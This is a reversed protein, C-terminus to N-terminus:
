SGAVGRVTTAGSLRWPGDRDGDSARVCLHVRKDIGRTNADAGPNATVAPATLVIGSADTTTVVTQSTWAEGGRANPVATPTACDAPRPERTSTRVNNNDTNEFTVNYEITVAEYNDTGGERPVNNVNRTAIRWVKNTNTSRASDPQPTGPQAPFTYLKTTQVAWQSKGTGNSYALCLFYGTYPQLGSRVVVESLSITLDSDGAEILTGESCATQIPKSTVFDAAAPDFQPNRQPDAVLRAEWNFGKVLGVATWALATVANDDDNLTQGTAQAAAPATTATRTAWAWSLNKEDDDDDETRVCLLETATVTSSASFRTGSGSPAALTEPFERCPNEASMSPIDTDAPIWWEYTEGAVPEWHWTNTSATSEWTVNLSGMGGGVPATPEAPASGTTRTKEIDSWDSTEYRDTDSPVARVRFDYDTGETLGSAVCEEDDVVNDDGGCSADGWDDGPERQDVEYSGANRVSDWELTISDDSQDTVEVDTPAALRAAPPPETTSSMLGETWMGFTPDTLTGTYTRVRLYGDSEADLNSVRRTTMNMGQHFAANPDSFGSSTSFESQYGDVGEVANWEWEIFDSGRTKVTLGTPAPALPVATTMGTVHTSFNSVVPADPTGAAAAVRVYLSTEAELGTATYSTETTLPVGDFLVTEANGLVTDDFMEDTSAQVVYGAAGEVANWHWTISSSTAEDVHLGTPTAPPEPTPEPEPAPPPAPPPPAPTTPAPVEEDGCASIMMGAGLLLAFLLAWGRGSAIKGTFSKM